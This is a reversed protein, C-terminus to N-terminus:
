VHFLNWCHKFCMSSHVFHKSLFCFMLLFQSSGPLLEPRVQRTRYGPDIVYMIGEMIYGYPLTERNTIVVKRNVNRYTTQAPVPKYLSEQSSPPVTSYMPICKINTCKGDTNKVEEVTRCAEEVEQVCFTLMYTKLTAKDAYTIWVATKYSSRRVQWLSSCYLFTTNIHNVYETCCWIFIRKM